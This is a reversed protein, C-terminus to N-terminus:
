KRAAFLDMLWERWVQAATSRGAQRNLYALLADVLVLTEDPTLALFITGQRIATQM